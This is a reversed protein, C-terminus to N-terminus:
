LMSQEAAAHLRRRTVYAETLAVALYLIGSMCVHALNASNEVILLIGTMFTGAIFLYSIKLKLQSPAFLGLTSFVLSISAIAIHTLLLM